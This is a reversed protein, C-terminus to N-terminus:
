IFGKPAPEKKEQCLPEEENVLGCLKKQAKALKEKAKKIKKGIEQMRKELEMEKSPTILKGSMLIQELRDLEALYSSRFDKSEALIQNYEALANDFRIARMEFRIKAVSAFIILLLGCISITRIIKELLTMRTKLRM